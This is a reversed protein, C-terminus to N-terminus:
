PEFFSDIPPMPSGPSCITPFRELTEELVRQANTREDLQQYAIHLYNYFQPVDPSPLSMPVVPM